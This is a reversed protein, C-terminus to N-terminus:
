IRSSRLPVTPTVVEVPKYTYTQITLEFQRHNLIDSSGTLDIAAREFVEVDLRSIRLVPGRGTRPLSGSAHM